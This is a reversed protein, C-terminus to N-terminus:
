LGGGGAQAEVSAFAGALRRYFALRDQDERPLYEEVSRAGPLPEPKIGELAATMMQQFIRAPMAGGTVEVMPKDNDNGVWVGAVYRTTYGIFWADRWEQSTGTKGAVDWGPVGAGRGTGQVVVRNLMGTMDQALNEPYIRPANRIPNSYLLDGKSNRIEEIIYPAMQLGGKAFVGYGTTLDLLTVEDTGLTISPYNHLPSTIGFERALSTVKEVGIEAGIQASVTNLSKALAESLTVAGRYEGGYNKPRWNGIQIPIDYRVTGPTMGDELAAAYVFAKFASGPQRRAQTARNFQSKSYDRGGVLARIAGTEVDILIAAAESARKSKGMAVIGDEVAKQTKAQLDLDLSLKIVLDPPPNPLLEHVREVAYDLAHGSFSGSSAEAFLLPQAYAADREAKTIWGAELMQDLVYLQREKAESTRTQQAFRSPAKPFGALMAAEALTLDQPTKGFYTQAAADLGYAGAGLYIRNLYLDLIEDKSLITELDAALRAEQAKRKLTQDPTLFLNKVLQQTITSGGQVTRGARANEMTARFIAVFDVGSHERFRRDEAAVFADVVHKPLEAASVARGYKPGRVAITAGHTDIFEVAPERNLTWLAERSPLQPMQAFLTNWLLGFTVLGVAFMTGVVKITAPGYENVAGKFEAKTTPFRANTM